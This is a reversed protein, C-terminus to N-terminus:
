SSVYCERCSSPGLTITYHFFHELEKGRVLVLSLRQNDYAAIDSM